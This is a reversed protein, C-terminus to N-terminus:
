CWMSPSTQCCHISGDDYPIGGLRMGFFELLIGQGSLSGPSDAPVYVGVASKKSAM